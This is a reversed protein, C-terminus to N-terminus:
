IVTLMWALGVVVFPTLAWVASRRLWAVVFPGGFGLVVTGTTAIKVIADERASCEEGWLSCLATYFGIM